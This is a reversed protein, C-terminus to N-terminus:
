RACGRCAWCRCPAIPKWNWCGNCSAASAGPASMPAVFVAFRMWGAPDVRFDTAAVGAGDLVQVAVLGDAAFWQGLLPTIAAPDEPMPLVQM